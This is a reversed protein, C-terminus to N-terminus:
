VALFQWSHDQSRTFRAFCVLFFMVLRPSSPVKRKMETGREGPRGNRRTRGIRWEVPQFPVARLREPLKGLTARLLMKIRLCCRGNNIPCQKLSNTRCDEGFIRSVGTCTWKGRCHQCTITTVVVTCFPLPPPSRFPAFNELTNWPKQRLNYYEGRHWLGNMHCTRGRGKKIGCINLDLM